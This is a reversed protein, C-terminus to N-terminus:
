NIKRKPIMIKTTYRLSSLEHNFPTRERNEEVLGITKATVNLSIIWKANIKTYPTHHSDLKM